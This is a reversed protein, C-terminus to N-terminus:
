LTEEQGEVLSRAWNYTAEKYDLDDVEQLKDKHM